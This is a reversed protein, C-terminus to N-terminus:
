RKVQMESEWGSHMLCGPWLTVPLSIAPTIGSSYYGGCLVCFGPDGM